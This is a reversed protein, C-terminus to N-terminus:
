KMVDGHEFHECLIIISCYAATKHLYSYETNYLKNIIVDM